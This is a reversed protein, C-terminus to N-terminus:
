SREKGQLPNRLLPFSSDFFFFRYKVVSCTNWRFLTDLLYKVVSYTLSTTSVLSSLSRNILVPTFAKILHSSLPDLHTKSGNIAGGPTSSFGKWNQEETTVIPQCLFTSEGCDWKQSLTNHLHVFLVHLLQQHAGRLNVLSIPRQIGPM